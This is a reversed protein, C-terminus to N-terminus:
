SLGPEIETEASCESVVAKSNALLYSVRVTEFIKASYFHVNLVIKSRAILTDREKGYVGFVTHVKVGSDKLAQLIRSRRDNLSGYFLVDIDQVKSAPIRSLEPVYGLPVHIPPRACRLVEWTKLNNLSYDWVQHRIGLEYFHKPLSPGGLQELNYVVSGAPVILAEDPTLLHAGLLINTAMADVANEQIHATHGLSQLGFKLTEAVERFAETHLYGDPRVLTIHFRSM